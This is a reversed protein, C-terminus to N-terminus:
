LRRAVLSAKAVGEKVSESYHLINLHLFFRLLENPRLLYDRNHPTGDSATGELFTDFILLGGGPRLGEAIQPILRRQLFNVNVILDYTAPAIDFQDLDACVAGINQHTHAMARLGVESIDVADVSFGMRALALANRGRGSALALARGIRALPSFELVIPSPAEDDRSKSHKEDWRERDQKM